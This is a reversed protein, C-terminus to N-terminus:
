FSKKKGCLSSCFTGVTVLILQNDQQDLYSVVNAQDPQTLLAEYYKIGKVATVKIKPVIKRRKKLTIM